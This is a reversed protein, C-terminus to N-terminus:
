FLYMYWCFRIEQHLLFEEGYLEEIVHYIEGLFDDVEHTSVPLYVTGLVFVKTTGESLSIFNFIFAM